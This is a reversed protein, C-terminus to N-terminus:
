WTIGFHRLLSRCSSCPVMVNGTTVNRTTVHSGRLSLGADLGRSVAQVEGCCGHTRSPRQVIDLARQAEGNTAGSGGATTSRGSVTAGGPTAMGTAAGTVRGEARAAALEATAVANSRAALGGVAVGGAGPAIAEAGIAAAQTLRPAAVLGALVIEPGAVIAAGGTLVGLYAGGVLAAAVPHQQRFERAAQAVKPACEESVCSQGTPDTANVPDNGVYAYLNFQDDYGIPDTQMFRGLTPSYIRAKYYYMGLESLWVQGTYQFRGSNTAAPIGYEDYRNITAPNGSADSLAVISGQHDAHQYRPMNLGAGEFTVMPVDAGTWHIHRRLMTGDGAYEVALADGDYLYRTTPFTGGSTQFLRGLPDYALVLGGPAGVLRNEIDYSYTHAGDSTLNGNADYAFAASGAASYQNLGNTTYPRDAAYHSTWAYADNDRGITALQGAPNYGYSWLANNAPAAYYHGILATRQLQDYSYGTNAGNGRGISGPAGHEFRPMWGLIAGWGTWLAYPRGVQDYSATFATGDPHTIRIRNSDADYQSAIYRTVGGMVQWEVTRRGFGDYQNVVGDGAASDFRAGTQLNRLDYSYFVDRTQAPTLAQPGSPREPVTKVTMRNLADYSYGLESGDRKRL